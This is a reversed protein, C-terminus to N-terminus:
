GQKTAHTETYTWELEEQIAGFDRIVDLFVDVMAADFQSGRGRELEGIAQELSMSSRYRRTSTMADFSDAITIIRAEEPIDTGGLGNPYGRGDYREHHAEVIPLIDNFLTIASLIEKGRSSHKKIENYEDDTLRSDKLLIEDPTAIKGIDHFTGAIRLREIYEKDKGMAKALLVSYHAVRDSHGRTYIDRADVMSRMVSIIEVYNDRLTAYTAELEENKENLLANLLVNSIAASAQRVYIEFLQFVDEGIRENTNARVVGFVKQHEDILPFTLFHDELVPVANQERLYKALYEKGLAEQTTFSGMGYYVANGSHNPNMCLFLDPVALFSSAQSLISKVVDKVSHIQYIEPISDVIQRLGQQFRKITKMQRISKACSEVLLELQDFRDSKEYYGQIDLERITQIPPAMSKHGTLLIIYIDKNFERIKEVVIDGTIPKMLFDLLLIDYHNERVKEIAKYPDNEIDVAYGTAQFYSQLTVTMIEDDDLTLISFEAQRAGAKNKRM